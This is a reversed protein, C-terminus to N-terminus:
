LSGLKSEVLKLTNRRAEVEQHLEQIKPSYKQRIKTVRGEKMRNAYIEESM